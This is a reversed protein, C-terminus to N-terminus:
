IGAPIKQLWGKKEVMKEARWTHLRGDRHITQLIRNLLQPKGAMSSIIVGPPTPLPYNGEPSSVYCHFIAM